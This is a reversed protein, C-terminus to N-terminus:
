PSCRARGAEARESIPGAEAVLATYRALCLALQDAEHGALLEMAEARRLSDLRALTGPQDSLAREMRQVLDRRETSLLLAHATRNDLLDAIALALAEGQQSALRAEILALWAGRADQYWRESGNALRLWDVLVQEREPDVPGADEAPLAARVAQELQESFARRRRGDIAPHDLRGRWLVWHLARQEEAQTGGSHGRALDYQAFVQMGFRRAKAENNLVQRTHVVNDKAGQVIAHALHRANDKTRVNGLAIMVLGAFDGPRRRVLRQGDAAGGSIGITFQLATDLPFQQHAWRIVGDQIKPKHHDPMGNRVEPIAVLVLGLAEAAEAWRRGTPRGNPSQVYVVPLPHQAPDTMATPLVYHIRRGDPGDAQHQGPTLAPATPETAEDAADAGDAAPEASAEAASTVPAILATLLLAPVLAHVGPVWLLEWLLSRRQWWRNNAQM